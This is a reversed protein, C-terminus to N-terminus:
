EPLAPGLTRKLVSYQCAQRPMSLIPADGPHLCGERPPSTPPSDPARHTRVPPKAVTRETGPFRTLYHVRLRTGRYSCGIPPRFAPTPAGAKTMDPLDNGSALDSTPLRFLFVDRSKNGSFTRNGHWGM